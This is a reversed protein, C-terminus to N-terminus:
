ALGAAQLAQQLGISVDNATRPNNIVISGPQFTVTRGISQSSVGSNVLPTRGISRFGSGGGTSPGTPINPIEIGPISNILNILDNIKAIAGDVLGRITDIAGSIINKAATVAGHIAAWATDWRTQVGAIWTKINELATQLWPWVTDKFFTYVNEVATKILPWVTEFAKQVAPLATDTLWPFATDRLWPWVTDRLFTYVTKVATSIAAWAIEFAKQVVPLATNTLWPFATNQLWPFFTDHLWDFVAKVAAQIKPWVENFAAQLSPLVTDKLLAFAAQLWPWVVDKFFAYVTQVAAMIVPWVTEFAAQIAPLGTDKVWAFATGLWPWVTTVFFQYATDVAQQIIPWVTQFASQLVPMATGSIWTFAAGLGNVLGDVITSIGSQVDPSNLWGMLGNLAPLVKAGVSEALEGMRDKFQTFGGDAAAAAAASGGFEKQLEALIVGQAGAMDGSDQLTTILKQQEKTFTVGVRTLASVGDKPSNLAKGLQVAADAPAGGMAQALDVSMATAADLVGGKLNTFTLLLNASEQIQSDGFLSKGSAASLEGSLDAIHGATVGAAGGTSKIVAETQAMIINAERADGIGTVLAASLAGVGAVAGGLVAGAGIKGLTALGGAIKGLGSSAKDVVGIVLNLESNAAM